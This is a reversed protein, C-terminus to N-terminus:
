TGQVIYGAQLFIAFRIEESQMEATLGPTVLHSYLLGSVFM